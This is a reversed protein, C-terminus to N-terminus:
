EASAMKVYSIMRGPAGWFEADKPTVSLLRIAPDGPYDSWLERIRASDNSVAAQGSISLFTQGAPDVFVLCARPDRAVDEDKHCRADTLFHVADDDRRAFAVMPRSRVEDGDHTVLMCIPINEILDWVKNADESPM